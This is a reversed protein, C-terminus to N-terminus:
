KVVKLLEDMYTPEKVAKTALPYIPEVTKFHVDLVKQSADPNLCEGFITSTFQWIAKNWYFRHYPQDKKHLKVRLFMESVNVSFAYEYM